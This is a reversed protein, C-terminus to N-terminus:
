SIRATVRWSLVLVLVVKLVYFAASTTHLQGFSLRGIGMRADGMLPQLAYYGIVTCFLAGLALLVNAGHAAGGQRREIMVFILAMAMSVGAEIAFLRNAARGADASPLTAFLAPAAMLAICLLMGAWLAPLLTRLRSM